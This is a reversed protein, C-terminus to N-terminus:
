NPKSPIYLNESSFYETSASRYKIKYKKRAFVFSFKEKIREAGSLIEIVLKM